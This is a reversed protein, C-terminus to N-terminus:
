LGNIRAEISEKHTLLGEIKALKIGEKDRLVGDKTYSILSIRKQFNSTSLGSFFRATQSTPLVHSPGAIYDGLAVPSYEKFFIAGANDIKELILKPDKVYLCLHEPAFWNSLKTADDLNKTIIIQVCDGVIKEIKKSLTLSTTILISYGGIGHEAQALLDTSIFKPNASKDAIILIESPGALLDIGVDGFVLRKAVTVYINGPGAIYDVRKITKTGYAFGAIAQAGGIQYVENISLLHCIGLIYPNVPPPSAIAIESVGAIKAPLATMLLTSILPFKGSPIYLGVRKIPKIIEGLTKGDKTKKWSKRINNKHFKEINKIAKKISLLEDYKINKYEKELCAGDVTLSKLEIGDFEETFRLISSDGGKQVSLIIKRVSEIVKEDFPPKKIIEGIIEKDQPYKLIM